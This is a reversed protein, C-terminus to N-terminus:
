VIYEDPMQLVSAKEEALLYPSGRTVCCIFHPDCKRSSFRMVSIIQFIGWLYGVVKNTIESLGRSSFLTPM